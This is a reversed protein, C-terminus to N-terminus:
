RRFRIAIPHSSPPTGRRCCDQGQWGVSFNDSVWFNGESDFGGKGGAKYGGGEFKLPLVWASPVWNHYPSIPFLVDNRKYKPAAPMSLGLLPATRLGHAKGIHYASSMCVM